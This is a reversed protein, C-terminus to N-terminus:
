KASNLLEDFADEVKRTGAKEAKEGSKPAYEKGGEAPAEKGGGGMYKAFIKEVESSPVKIFVEGLPKIEKVLEADKTPNGTLPTPRLGKPKIDIMTFTKNNGKEGPKKFSVHLDYAKKPSTLADLAHDSDDPDIGCERLRDAGNTDTVVELVQNAQNQTLGWWAPATIGKGDETREIMPLYVKSTAQIKKFLEFDEKRRKEPKDRGKDDKWAKLLEAFDCIVCEDGFNAKPCLVERADGVNFHFTREQFLDGEVPLIRVDHEDKPKWIDTNKSTKRNLSALRAKLEAINNGM